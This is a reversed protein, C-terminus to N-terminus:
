DAAAEDQFVDVRSYFMTYFPRQLYLVDTHTCYIVFSHTHTLYLSLWTTVARAVTVTIWGSSPQRILQISSCFYEM